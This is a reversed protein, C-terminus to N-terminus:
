TLSVVSFTKNSDLIVYNQFEVNEIDVKNETKNSDLIVYNQFKIKWNLKMM